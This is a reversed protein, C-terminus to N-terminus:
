SREMYALLRLGEESLTGHERAVVSWERTMDAFKQPNYVDEQRSWLGNGAYDLITINAATHHSGDGPDRMPNDVECVVRGTEPDFVAWTAPFGLMETAPFSTMTKVIWSRIQDRGKFTGYSHEVYDADETFMDAFRGWDGSRRIDEVTAQYTAFAQELEAREM